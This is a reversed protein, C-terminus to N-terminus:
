LKELLFEPVMWVVFLDSLRHAGQEEKAGGRHLFLLKKGVVRSRLLAAPKGTLCQVGSM